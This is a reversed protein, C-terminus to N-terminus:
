FINAGNISFLMNKTTYNIFLLTIPKWNKPEFNESKNVPVDLLMLLQSYQVLCAPDKGGCYTCMETTVQVSAKGNLLFYFHSSM